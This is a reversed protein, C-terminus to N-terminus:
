GARSWGLVFELEQEVRRRGPSRTGKGARYLIDWLPAKSSAARWIWGPDRERCPRARERSSHGAMGLRVLLRYGGLLLQRPHGPSRHQFRPFSFFPGNWEPCSFAPKKFKHFYSAYGNHLVGHLMIFFLVCILRLELWAKHDIYKNTM